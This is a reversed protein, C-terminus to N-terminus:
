SVLLDSLSCTLLPSFSVGPRGTIVACVHLAYVCAYVASTSHQIHTLTCVSAHKDNQYNKSQSYFHAPGNILEGDHASSLTHQLKM